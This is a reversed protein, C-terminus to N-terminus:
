QWDGPKKGSQATDFNALENELWDREAEIALLENESADLRERLEAIDRTRDPTAGEREECALACALEIEAGACRNEGRLYRSNVETLAIVLRVREPIPMSNQQSAV